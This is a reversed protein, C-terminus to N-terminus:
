PFEKPEWRLLNFKREGQWTTHSLSKNARSQIKKIVKLKGLNPRENQLDGIERRNKYAIAGMLLDALQMLESEHSRIQQVREIVEGASDRNASRLVKELHARKEESRTDKIDMYVRYKIAPNIIRDILLFMMKYYWEDHTQNHEEHALISRDPILIGRFGLKPEEFFLDIWDCYFDAKSASVKTWKVEFPTQPPTYDKQQALGHFAKLNRLRESISRTADERCWVCGFVLVSSKFAELHCSEDCYINILDAM